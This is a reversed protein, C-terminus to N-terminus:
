FHRQWCIVGVPREKIRDCPQMGLLHTSLAELDREIDTTGEAFQAVTAPRIRSCGLYLCHCMPPTCAHNRSDRSLARTLACSAKQLSTDAQKVRPPRLEIRHRTAQLTRKTGVCGLREQACCFGIKSAPQDPRPLRRRNSSGLMCGCQAAFVLGDLAEDLRLEVRMGCPCPM